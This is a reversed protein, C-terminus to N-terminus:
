AFETHEKGTLNLLLKKLGDWHLMMLAGSVISEILKRHSVLGPMTSDKNLRM